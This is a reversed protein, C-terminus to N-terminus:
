PASIMPFCFFIDEVQPVLFSSGPFVAQSIVHMWEFGSCKRLSVKCCHKAHIYPSCAQM